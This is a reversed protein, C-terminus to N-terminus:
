ELAPADVSVFGFWLEHPTDLLEVYARHHAIAPALEPSDDRLYELYQEISEALDELAARVTAGHGLGDLDPAEAIWGAEGPRVLASLRPSMYVAYSSTPPEPPAPRPYHLALSQVVGPLRVLELGADDSIGGAVVTTM